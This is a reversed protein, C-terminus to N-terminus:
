DAWNIGKKLLSITKEELSNSEAQFNYEWSAQAPLSM